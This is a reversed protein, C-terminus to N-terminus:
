IGRIFQSYESAVHESPDRDRLKMAIMTRIDDDTLILVGRSQAFNKFLTRNYAVINPGPRSRCVIFGWLGIAPKLYCYVQRLDDRNLETKNKAEVLIESCSYKLKLDHFVGSKALNQAILDRIELAENGPETRAQAIAEGLHANFLYNFSIRVFDEYARYYENGPPLAREISAAEEQLFRGQLSASAVLIQTADKTAVDPSWRDPNSGGKMVYITRGEWGLMTKHPQKALGEFNERKFYIWDPKVEAMRALFHDYTIDTVLVLEDERQNDYNVLLATLLGPIEFVQLKYHWTSILFRHLFDSFARAYDRAFHEM